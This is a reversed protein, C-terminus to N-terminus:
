LRLREIALGLCIAMAKAFFSFNQASRPIDVAKSLWLPKGNDITEAMALSELSESIGAAIKLLYDSRKEASLSSWGAFAATAAEIANEIDAKDSDPAQSYVAGTAPNYVDLRSGSASERLKGNIYNLIM